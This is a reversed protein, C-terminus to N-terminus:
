SYRFCIDVVYFIAAGRALAFATGRSRARLSPFTTILNAAGPARGSVFTKHLLGVVSDSLSSLVEGFTDFLDLVIHIRFRKGTSITAAPQEPQGFFQWVAALM